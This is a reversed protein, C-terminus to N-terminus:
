HYVLNYEQQDLSGQYQMLYEQLYNMIEKQALCLSEYRNLSGRPDSYDKTLNHNNIYAKINNWSKPYNEAAIM